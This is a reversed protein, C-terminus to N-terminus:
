SKGKPPHGVHWHDGCPYANMPRPDRRSKNRKLDVLHKIAKAKTHREKWPTPCEPLM